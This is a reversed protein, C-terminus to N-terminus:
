IVPLLRLGETYGETPFGDVKPNDTAPTSSLLNQVTRQPITQPVEFNAPESM